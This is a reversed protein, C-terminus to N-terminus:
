RFFISNIPKTHPLCNHAHLAEHSHPNPLASISANLSIPQWKIFPTIWNKVTRWRWPVTWLISSFTDMLAVYWHSRMMYEFACLSDSASGKKAQSPSPHSSIIYLRILCEALKDESFSATSFRLHFFCQAFHGVIATEDTTPPVAFISFRLFKAETQNHVRASLTRIAISYSINMRTWRYISTFPSCCECVSPFPSRIFRLFFYYQCTLRHRHWTRISFYIFLRLQNYWERTAAVAAAHVDNEAKRHRRAKEVTHRVRTKGGPRNPSTSLLGAIRGCRICFSFSSTSTSREKCGGDFVNVIACPWRMCLLFGHVGNAYFKVSTPCKRAIKHQALVFYTLNTDILNLEHWRLGNTKRTHSIWASEDNRHRQQLSHQLLLLWVIHFRASGVSYWTHRRGSIYIYEFMSILVRGTYKCVNLSFM